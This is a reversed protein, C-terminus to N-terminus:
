YKTETARSCCKARAAVSTAATRELTVPVTRSPLSGVAVVPRQWALACHCSRIGRRKRQCQQRGVHPDALHDVTGERRSIHLDISMDLGLRDRRQTCHNAAPSHAVMTGCMHSRAIGTTVVAFAIRNTLGMAWTVM